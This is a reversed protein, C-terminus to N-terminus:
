AMVGKGRHLKGDSHFYPEGCHRCSRFAGTNINASVEKGCWPCSGIEVSFIFAGCFYGLATSVDTAWGSLGLAHQVMYGCDYFFLAFLAGFVLDQCWWTDRVTGPTGVRDTFCFRSSMSGMLLSMYLVLGCILLLAVYWTAKMEMLATFNISFFFLILAEFLLVACRLVREHPFSVFARCEVLMLLLGAESLALETLKSMM